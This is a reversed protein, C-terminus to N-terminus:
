TRGRIVGGSVFVSFEGPVQVVGGSVFVSVAGPATLQVIGGFILFLCM